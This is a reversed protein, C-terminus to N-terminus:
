IQKLKEAKSFLDNNALRELNKQLDEFDKAKRYGPKIWYAIVEYMTKNDDYDNLLLEIANIQNHLMHKEARDDAMKLTQILSHKIRSFRNYENDYANKGDITLISTLLYAGAYVAALEPLLLILGGLMSLQFFISINSKDRNLKKSSSILYQGCGFMNAFQDALQEASTSDYLNVGGLESKSLEITRNLIIINVSEKEKSAMMIEVEENSLKIKRQINKFVIEKTEYSANKNNIVNSALALVQNTRTTKVSYEIYTFIHGVEHLLISATEYDSYKNDIDLLLDRSILVNFEMESFVGTVKADALNVTGKIDDENIKKSANIIDNELVNTDNAFLELIHNKYLINNNNILTFDASAGWQCKNIKISLGTRNKISNELEIIPDSSYLKLDTLNKYDVGRVRRILFALDGLFDTGQYSISEVAYSFIGKRM